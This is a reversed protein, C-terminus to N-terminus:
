QKKFIPHWSDYARDTTVFNAPSDELARVDIVGPNNHIWTRQIAASRKIVPLKGYLQPQPQTDPVYPSQYPLPVLTGSRPVYVPPIPPWSAPASLTVPTDRPVVQVKGDTHYTSVIYGLREQQRQEAGTPDNKPAFYYSSWDGPGMKRGENYKKVTGFPSRPDQIIRNM